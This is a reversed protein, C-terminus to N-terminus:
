NITATEGPVERMPHPVTKWDDGMFREPRFMQLLDSSTGTTVEQAILEGLLPGLGIGSHTVATYLNPQGPVPGVAPLGDATLPRVSATSSQVCASEMNRMVRKAKDVLAHAGRPIPDLPVDWVVGSREPGLAHLAREEPRGHLMLRGGGAPRISLGPMRIMRRVDAAIGNTIVQLGLTEATTGWPDVVPLDFGVEALLHQTWRGACVIVVDAEVHHGASDIVGVVSGGRTVLRSEGVGFRLEAGLARLERLMYGTMIHPYVISDSAFFIVEDVGEPIVLDPELDRMVDSPGLQRVDYGWGVLREARAELGRRSVEDDAWELHGHPLFWRDGRFREALRGMAEMSHLGLQYYEWPRKENSGVMAGTTGTTGSAPAARDLLTVKAGTQAIRLAASVGLVGAGLVLYHPTSM